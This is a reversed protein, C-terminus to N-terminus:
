GVGRANIRASIWIEPATALRARSQSSVKTGQVLAAEDSAVGVAHLRRHEDGANRVVEHHGMSPDGATDNSELTSGNWSSFAM